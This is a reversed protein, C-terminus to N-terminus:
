ACSAIGSSRHCNSDAYPLRRLRGKAQLTNQGSINKKIYDMEKLLKEKEAEYLEFRHNWRIEREQLYTSYNGRYYESGSIAM